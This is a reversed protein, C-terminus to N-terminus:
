KNKKCTLVIDYKDNIEKDYKSKKYGPIWLINDDSDCVLIIEDRKYLPIKLDIFIDKIKKSHDMHKIIMKDGDKRTRYVLPMKIEKSNLRITYNSTDSSEKVEMIKVNNIIIDKDVYLEDYEKFIIHNNPLKIKVYTKNSNIAKLIEDVNKDDVKYLDDIYLTSLIYELIRRQIIKEQRLFKNIFLTNDVYIDQLVEKTYKNIFDDAESITNSYKLYKKQILDYEEHLKPLIYHRYRNRLYDDENNTRDIYYKYNNSDMYDIIDKKTYFILPKVQKYNGKNTLIDFGSYGKLNSGRQIRMLVTEILDDGHHATMLFQANYKEILENFFKYRIIRAESHFNSKPIDKLEFYEYILNNDNSFQKVYEAEEDSEKRVKHNMHAVIIKLNLSEKLDCLLHLLCMSDPGGSVGVVVVSDKNLISKLYNLSENM